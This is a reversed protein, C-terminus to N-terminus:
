VYFFFWLVLIPPLSDTVGIWLQGLWRPCMQGCGVLEVSFTPISIYQAVTLFCLDKFGIHRLLCLPLALDLRIYCCAVKVGSCQAYSDCTKLHVKVNAWLTKLGSCARLVICPFPVRQAFLILQRLSYLLHRSRRLSGEKPYGSM